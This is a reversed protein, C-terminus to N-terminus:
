PTLGLIMEALPTPSVRGIAGFSVGCPRACFRRISIVTCPGPAQAEPRMPHRDRPRSLTQASTTAMKAGSNLRMLELCAPLSVAKVRPQPPFECPLM